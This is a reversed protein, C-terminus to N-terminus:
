GEMGEPDTFPNRPHLDNFPLGPSHVHHNLQSFGRQNELGIKPTLFRRRNEVAVASMASFSSMSATAAAIVCKYQQL